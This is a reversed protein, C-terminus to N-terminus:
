GTDEGKDQQMSRDAVAHWLGKNRCKLLDKLETM